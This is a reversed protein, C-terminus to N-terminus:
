SHLKQMLEHKPKRKTAEIKQGGNETEELWDVLSVTNLYFGINHGNSSCARETM